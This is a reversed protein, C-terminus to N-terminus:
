HRHVGILTLAAVGLARLTARTGELRPKVPSRPVAAVRPRHRLTPQM